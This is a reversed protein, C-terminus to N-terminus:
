AVEGFPASSLMPGREPLPGGRALGISWDATTLAWIGGIAERDDAVREGVGDELPHQARDQGIARLRDPDLAQLAARVLEGVGHRLNAGTVVDQPASTADGCLSFAGGSVSQSLSSARSLPATFTM